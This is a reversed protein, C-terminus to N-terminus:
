AHNHSAAVDPIGVLVLEERLEALGKQLRDIQAVRKKAEEEDVHALPVKLWHNLYVSLTSTINDWLDVIEEEGRRSQSPPIITRYARESNSPTVNLGALLAAQRVSEFRGERMEQILQPNAKNIAIMTRVTTASVGVVEGIREATKGRDIEQELTLGARGRHKRKLAVDTYYPLLDFALLALQVVTLHRRRLNKSIVFELLRDEPLESEIFVPEVGAHLCARYRNRGDLIKGGYLVIPDTLGNTVIDTALNNIEEDSMLPFLKAVEHSEIM